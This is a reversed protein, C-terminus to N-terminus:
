FFTGSVNISAYILCVKGCYFPKEFTYIKTYRKTNEDNKFKVYCDCVEGM